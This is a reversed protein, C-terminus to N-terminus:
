DEHLARLEEAVAESNDAKGQVARKYRRYEGRSVHIEETEGQRTVELRVTGQPNNRLKFSAVASLVFWLAISCGVFYVMATPFALSDAAEVWQGPYARRFLGVGAVTVAAGVLVGLRERRSAPLVAVVGLFMAPIGLGALVGAVRRSEVTTTADFLSALGTTLVLIASVVALAGLVLLSAGASVRRPDRGTWEGRDYAESLSPM